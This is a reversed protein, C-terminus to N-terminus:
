VYAHSAKQRHPFGVMELDNVSYSRIASGALPKLAGQRELRALFAPNTGFRECVEEESLVYRGLKVSLSGELNKQVQAETIGWHEDRCRMLAEHDHEPFKLATVLPTDTAMSKLIATRNPAHCISCIETRM